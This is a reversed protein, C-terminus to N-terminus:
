TECWHDVCIHCSVKSHRGYELGKIEIYEVPIQVMGSSVHKRDGKTWTLFKSTSLAM